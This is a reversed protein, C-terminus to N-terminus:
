WSEENLENIRAVDEDVNVDGVDDDDDDVDVDVDADDGDYDRGVKRAIRNMKYRTYVSLVIDEDKEWNGKLDIM